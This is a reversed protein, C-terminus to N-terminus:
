ANGTYQKWEDDDESWQWVKDGDLVTGTYETWANNTFIYYKGQEYTVAEQGEGVTIDETPAILDGASPNEPLASM